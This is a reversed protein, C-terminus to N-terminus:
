ERNKNDIRVLHFHNLKFHIAIRKSLLEKKEPQQLVPRFLETIKNQNAPLTKLLKSTM